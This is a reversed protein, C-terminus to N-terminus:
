NTEAKNSQDKKAETTEGHHNTHALKEQETKLIDVGQAFTLKEPMQHFDSLVEESVINLGKFMLIKGNMNLQMETIGWAGDGLGLDAQQVRFHGGKNLHGLIGWGFTVEEFLTGDMRALRRTKPDILLEGEMGRLVQEVHSPPSYAPNPKFKLKVLEDGSKGLAPASDETGAYEYCFADPLAKVIRLTRDEDEKERAEKKHLQEPNNALSALHDFQAKQQEATLPQDNIAILMGALAQNTEVYLHTQMGKPTQRRSRFMHHLDPHNAAAVENAVTVRVLEGPPIEPTQSEQAAFVTTAATFVVAMGLTCGTRRRRKACNMEITLTAIWAGPQLTYEGHRELGDKRSSGFYRAQPASESNPITSLLSAATGNGTEQYVLM